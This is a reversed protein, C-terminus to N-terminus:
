RLGHLENGETRSEKEKKVRGNQFIFHIGGKEDLRLEANFVKGNKSICSKVPTHRGALLLKVDAASISTGATEKWIAFKCPDENRWGSCYYSKKGEYVNKGCCPCVGLAEKEYTQLKGRGAKACDNVYKEMVKEFALPDEALRREWATTEGADALRSLNGDARLFKVLWVGKETAKLKKKEERIYGRRFLSKIIEARTAATGLGAPRGGQIHEGTGPPNEMFALLTDMRYERPPSTKKDRVQTNVIRLSSTEVPKSGAGDEEELEGAFAKKWGENLVEGAAARYTYPGNKLMYTHEYWIHDPMCVAYFSKVILEYVNKEEPSAREPLPALPILAHHDELEASNFIHKNTETILAKDSYQSWQRCRDKLLNFADRFLGADTDGMVRSPTRPYSLCRHKEYLSQALSLTEEPSYGHKRFAEKQLATLNLLKFPKQAKKVTNVTILLDATNGHTEAYDLAEYLYPSKESFATKGTQPNILVATVTIRKSDELTIELENYPTKIFNEVQVNRAAVAALVASQVRGASFVEKGGGTLTALRSINMGVLWDAHQRAFGQAAIRNYDSLPKATRMGERIVEETLAQSVWFRRCRSLDKLGAERLAIRAILEGERGADTAILIEEGRHAKLLGAVVEAQSATEANTNYRYEGPLIPLTDLSWKEWASRYQEPMWLEYLHGVCYTVTYEENHYYGKGRAPLCRLVQAFRAAVSPKECLILM